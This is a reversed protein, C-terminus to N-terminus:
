IVNKILKVKSQSSMPSLKAYLHSVKGLDNEYLCKRASMKCKAIGVSNGM